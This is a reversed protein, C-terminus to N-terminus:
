QITPSAFLMCTGPRPNACTPEVVRDRVSVLRFPRMLDVYTDISRPHSMYGGPDSADVAFFPETKEICLVHGNPALRKLADTALRVDTDSLHQLFVNTLALNYPTDSSISAVSDIQEFEIDPLLARAVAVFHGEREFGKVHGAFEKLVVTMRGYGCGVECARRIQYSASIETVISRLTRHEFYNRMALAPGYVESVADVTWAFRRADDLVSGGLRRRAKVYMCKLLYRMPLSSCDPLALEDQTFFALEKENM